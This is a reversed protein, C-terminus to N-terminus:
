APPLLVKVYSMMDPGFGAREYVARARSNQAFVSLTLWHYGRELAWTEAFALLARGVGQGEAATTVALDTIHAQTQQYFDTSTTLHLVGVPQGQQEALFVGSHPAPHHLTELLVAIDRAKLQAEDRWAPPGFALLRPLVERIFPEDAPTAPRIHAPAPAPASM